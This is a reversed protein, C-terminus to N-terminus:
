EPKLGYSVLHSFPCRAFREIRSPSLSMAEDTNKRFLADAAAKGLEEYKNTFSLANRIREVKEPQNKEFWGLAQKWEGCIEKGEGLSQLSETLHRLGSVKSNILPFNDSGNIVDKRIPLDPFLEKLKTFIKSPKIQNGEMDSLSYSVWLYDSPSSFNRYIAM